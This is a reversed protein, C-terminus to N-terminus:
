RRRGKTALRRERALEAISELYETSRSEGRAIAEARRRAAARQPSELGTKAIRREVRGRWARLCEDELKEWTEFEPASRIEAVVDGPELLPNSELDERLAALRTWVPHRPSCRGPSDEPTPFELGPPHPIWDAGAADHAEIHERFQAANVMPDRAEPRDIVLRGMTLRRRARGKPMAGALGGLGLAVQGKAGKRPALQGGVDAYDERRPTACSTVLGGRRGPIQVGLLDTKCAYPAEPGLARWASPTPNSRVVIDGVDDFEDRTPRRRRTM